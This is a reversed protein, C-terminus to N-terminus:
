WADRCLLSARAVVGDLLAAPLELRQELVWVPAGGWREGLKTACKPTTLWAAVAGRASRPASRLAAHDAFLHVLSPAIGARGLSRLVRGPRGLALAVGLPLDRLEALTVVHGDPSRAGTLETKCFVTPKGSAHASRDSCADGVLAVLDCAELLRAPRARLDGAPPCRASGWPAAADLVLISCALRAPRAQLLADAIVVPALSAALELAQERASGAVVPVSPGLARALMLAEDGVRGVADSARVRRPARIRAPYGNTVVAVRAGRAELARALELALPTKGSGGLTAGGVGIVRGARPLQVSRMPDAVREWARGLAAPVRRESGAELRAAVRRRLFTEAANM